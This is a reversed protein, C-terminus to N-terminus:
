PGPETSSGCREAPLTWCGVCGGDGALPSTSWYRGAADFPRMWASRLAIRLVGKADRASANMLLTSASRATFPAIVFTADIVHASAHSPECDDGDRWTITM